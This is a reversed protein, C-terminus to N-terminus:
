AAKNAGAKRKGPASDPAAASMLRQVIQPDESLIDGADEITADPHHRKIAAFVVHRMMPISAGGQEAQQFAEIAPTGTAEEFECMANMDMRLTWDRGDVSQASVEGMFRNAM